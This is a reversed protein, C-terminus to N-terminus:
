PSSQHVPTDPGRQQQVLDLRPPNLIVIDVRRNRARGEATDNSAVPHFEGYGAASLRAPDFHYREVFLKILESARATSLEWNSAYQSNHIPINDTHGEIRLSETRPGLIAALRDVAGRSSPRMLASGSEYFGMERLSVVLGERTPKIEVVHRKIEPALAKELDAQIDKMPANTIPTLVGKMPQVFRELDATRESNEVVQIKSFPIAESDNLPIQTNSTDFVGLQQFAVQIAMALKGVKRKDVQSSAYLVVFFAFLLTIFDAYSVLWRERNGHGAAARRRSM